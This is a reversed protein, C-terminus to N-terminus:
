CGQHRQYPKGGGPGCFSGELFTQFFDVGLCFDVGCMSDVGCFFDVVCFFDVGRFFDVGLFSDVVYVLHAIISRIAIYTGRGFAWEKMVLIM